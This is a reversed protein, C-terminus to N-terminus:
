CVTPLRKQGCNNTQAAKLLGTRGLFPLELGSVDDETHAAADLVAAPAALLAAKVPRLHDAYVLHTYAMHSWDM